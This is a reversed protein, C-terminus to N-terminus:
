KPRGSREHSNKFMRDLGKHADVYLPQVTIVRNFYREAIDINGSYYEMYAFSMLIDTNNPYAQKLEEFLPRAKNYNGSWAVIRAKAFQLAYSKQDIESQASIINLADDYRKEGAMILAYESIESITKEAAYTPTTLFVALFVILAITVRYTMEFGHKASSM